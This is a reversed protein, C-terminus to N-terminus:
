KLKIVNVVLPTGPGVSKVLVLSTSNPEVAVETKQGNSAAIDLKSDAPTPFSCYQFEKPLTTWTRTDAINVAAQTAATAVKSFLGAVAGGADEAAKNVFYSATAKITTSLLTKTIISPLEDKFAQGVVGDMSALLATTEVSGGATVNLAAVYNADFVLKPFAAGVYPVRGSGIFFVPIDLRFQDRSPASGTEFVVYTRPAVPEGNAAKEAVALDANIYKNEGSLGKVREFSKRARELDSGGAAFTLFYVGDLYVPFPNVYDAYAKLTDLATYNDKLLGSVKPDAKAQEVSRSENKKEDGAKKIEEEEKEIRKKNNEVADQQRQFTRIIEPRAKESQGLQLYNLAKYTNVMVKDYDRGTYPLNAQNSLVAGTESAVSTRAKEEYANIVDDAQQFAEISEPIKGAARLAAAQELRYVLADKGDKAKDAKQTFDTAAAAYNGSKWINKTGATKQEYTQCGTLASAAIALAALRLPHTPIRM